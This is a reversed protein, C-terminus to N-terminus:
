TLGMKWQFMGAITMARQKAEEAKEGVFNEDITNRFHFLWRDFDEKKLPMHLHKVLPNSKYTPDGLLIMCWFDIIVPTHHEWDVNAFHPALQQDHRVKKYFSTILLTVDEKTQIDHTLM